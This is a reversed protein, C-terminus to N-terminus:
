LVQLRLRVEKDLWTNSDVLDALSTKMGATAVRLPPQRFEENNADKLLQQLHKHLLQKGDAERIAKAMNSLLWKQTTSLFM